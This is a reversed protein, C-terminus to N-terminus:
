NVHEANICDFNGLENVFTVKINGKWAAPPLGSLGRYGDKLVYQRRVRIAHHSTLMLDARDLAIWDRFIKLRTQFSVTHPMLQLIRMPVPDGQRLQELFPSVSASRSSFLSLFSPKAMPDSVLQWHGEPCFTHRVDLDYIQLLLRRAAHFRAIAPPLPATSAAGGSAPLTSQHLLAFYFTNLFGSIQILDDTSFPTENEFIDTDDLTRLRSSYM